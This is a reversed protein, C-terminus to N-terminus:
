FAKLMPSPILTMRDNDRISDMNLIIADELM